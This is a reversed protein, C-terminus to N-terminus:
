PLEKAESAGLPARCGDPISEPRVLALDGSCADSVVVRRNKTVRKSAKAGTLDVSRAGIQRSVSALRWRERTDPPPAVLVTRLNVRSSGILSGGCFLKVPYRGRGCIDHLHRLRSPTLNMTETLDSTSPM